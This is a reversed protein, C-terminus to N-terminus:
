SLFTFLSWLEGLHNELPTGTLCLRHRAEIERVARTTAADPNKITQAEDLVLMHWPEAHLVQHDRTLLPYTTLVLDHGAIEGFRAKRDAGHLILVKLDPTFRLAERRWNAVLSTPAVILAPRDLRGEAKE